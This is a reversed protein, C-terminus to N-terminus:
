PAAATAQAHGHRIRDIKEQLQFEFDPDNEDDHCSGCIQLIVCSDCKDALGLISGKQPPEEKAHNGGPGHCSECGVNVLGGGGVPFGGQQEFGTTHCAICQANDHEGKTELSAFARAHPGQKWIEFQPLHCKECAASGVFPGPEFLRRERRDRQAILQQREELSLSALHTNAAHSVTPLREAFVFNLSHKETHCTECVAQFDKAVRKPSQHPGGRGHCNECGNDELHPYPTELSYGGPQDFGVTHCALCEPNRAAGHETLTQFTHAHPTLSWTDYQAPHCARCVDTGSYGEQDLLIPNEIGLLHRVEMTLLAQIRPESGHHRAFVSGGRDIVVSDPVRAQFAYAQQTERTPDVYTPFTLGLQKVMTEIVYRRNRVSVAVVTLGQEGLESQLKELFRLLEHCHPCTPLYFVLAVVRGELEASDLESGDLSAVRFPPAPPLLGLEPQMSEGKRTLRLSERISREYFQAPDAVESAFGAVGGVVWGEADVLLILSDGPPAGLKRSIALSGDDAVPFEFAHRAAFARGHGPDLDRSVGLVQVNARHADPSLRQVLEAIGDANRDTSAFVYILARRGRLRDSGFPKGAFTRAEFRPLARGPRRSRQAEDAARSELSGCLALVLGAGLALRCGLGGARARAPTM